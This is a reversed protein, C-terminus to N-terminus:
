TVGRGTKRKEGKEKTIRNRGDWRRGEVYMDKDEDVVGEGVGGGGDKWDTVSGEEWVRWGKIGRM